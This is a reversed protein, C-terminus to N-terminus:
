HPWRAPWERSAKSELGHWGPTCIGQGGLRCECGRCGVGTLLVRSQKEQPVAKWRQVHGQNSPQLQGM